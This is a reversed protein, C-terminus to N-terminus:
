MDKIWINKWVQLIYLVSYMFTIRNTMVYFGTKWVLNLRRASENNRHCDGARRTVVEVTLIFLTETVVYKHPVIIIFISCSFLLNWYLFETIKRWFHDNNNHLGSSLRTTTTLIAIYLYQYLSRREEPANRLRCEYNSVSTVSLLYTM